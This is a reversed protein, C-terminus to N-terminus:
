PGDHETELKVVVFFGGRCELDVEFTFDCYINSLDSEDRTTLGGIAASVKEFEDRLHDTDDKRVHRYRAETTRYLDGLRLDRTAECDRGVCIWRLKKVM